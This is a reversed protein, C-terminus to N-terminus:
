HVEANEYYSELASTMSCGNGKAGLTKACHAQIGPSTHFSLSFHFVKPQSSPAAVEDADEALETTLVRVGALLM